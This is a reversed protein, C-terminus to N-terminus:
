CKYPSDAVLCPFNFAGATSETSYFGSILSLTTTLEYFFFGISAIAFLTGCALYCNTNKDGATSLLDGTVVVQSPTRSSSEDLLRIITASNDIIHPFTYANPYTKLRTVSFYTKNGFCYTSPRLVELNLGTRIVNEIHEV